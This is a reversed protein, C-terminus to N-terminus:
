SARFDLCTVALIVYIHKTWKLRGLDSLGVVQWCVSSEDRGLASSEYFEPCDGFLPTVGCGLLLFFSFYLDAAFHLVEVFDPLCYLSFLLVRIVIIQSAPVNPFGLTLFLIVPEIKNNSYQKYIINLLIRLHM